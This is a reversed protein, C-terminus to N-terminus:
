IIHYILNNFRIFKCFSIIITFIYFAIYPYKKKEFTIINNGNNIENEHNENIIELQFRKEEKLNNNIGLNCILLIRKNDFYEKFKDIIEAPNKCGVFNHSKLESLFFFNEYFQINYLEIKFLLYKKYSIRCLAFKKNFFNNERDKLIVEFYSINEKGIKNGEIQIKKEFNKNERDIISIRIYQTTAINDNFDNFNIDNKYDIGNIDKLIIYLNYEKNKNSYKKFENALIVQKFISKEKNIIEFEIRSLEIENNKENNKEQINLRINANKNEDDRNANIDVMSENQTNINANEIIEVMSETQTM